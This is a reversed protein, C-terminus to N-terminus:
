ILAKGDTWNYRTYQLFEDKIELARGDVHDVILVQPLTGTDEEIKLVENFITKYMSGVAMIDAPPLDSTKEDGRPFYVQSPQDFFLFLPM